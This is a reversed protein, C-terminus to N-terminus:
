SGQRGVVSAYPLKTHIVMAGEETGIAKIGYVRRFFELDPRYGYSRRNRIGDRYHFYVRYGKSLLRRPRSRRNGVVVVSERCLPSRGEEKQFWLRVAEVIRFSHKVLM